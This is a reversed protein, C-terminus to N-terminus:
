ISALFGGDVPLCHGTIYSAADSALFVVAGGIDSTEGFRQQPIKQLMRSQWTEDEYFSETM